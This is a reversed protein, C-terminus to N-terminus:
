DRVPSSKGSVVGGPGRGKSEYLPSDLAAFSVENYVTEMTQEVNALTLGIEQTRALLDANKSNKLIQKWPENTKRSILRAYVIRSLKERDDRLLERIQDEPIDLKRAVPPLVLSLDVPLVTKKKKKGNQIIEVTEARPKQSILEDLSLAVRQIETVQPSAGVTILAAASVGLIKIWTRRMITFLAAQGGVTRM